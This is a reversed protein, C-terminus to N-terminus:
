NCSASCISLNDYLLLIHLVHGYLSLPQFYKVRKVCTVCYAYTHSKVAVLLTISFHYITSLNIDNMLMIIKIYMKRTKEMWRNCPHFQYTMNIQQMM